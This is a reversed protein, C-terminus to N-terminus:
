QNYCTLCTSFACITYSKCISMVLQECIQVWKREHNVQLIQFIFGVLSYVGATRRTLGLQLQWCANEFASTLWSNYFM